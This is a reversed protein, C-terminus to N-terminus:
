PAGFSVTRSPMVLPSLWRLEAEPFDGCILVPANDASASKQAVEIGDELHLRSAQLGPPQPVPFRRYRCYGRLLAISSRPFSDPQRDFGLLAVIRPVAILRYRFVFIRIAKEAHVTYLTLIPILALSACLLIPWREFRSRLDLRRTM